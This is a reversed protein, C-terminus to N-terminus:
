PRKAAPSMSSCVSSAMTITVAGTAKKGAILQGHPFPRVSGLHGLGWHGGISRTTGHGKSSSWSLLGRRAVTARCCDRLAPGGFVLFGYSSLTSPPAGSLRWRRPARKQGQRAGLFLASLPGRHMIITGLLRQWIAPPLCPWSGSLKIVQQAQIPCRILASGAVLFIRM